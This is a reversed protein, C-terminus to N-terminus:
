SETQKKRASKSLALDRKKLKGASKTASIGKRDLKRGRKAIALDRLKSKGASKAAVLAKRNQKVGSKAVVPDGKKMKKGSKAILATHQKSKKVSKTLAVAHRAHHKSQKASAAVVAAGKRAKRTHLRSAHAMKREGADARVAREAPPVSSRAIMVPEERQILLARDFMEAAVNWRDTRSNLMVLLIDRNDKIARGILCRGARGTYGTKIGVAYPYRGLLKNHTKLSYVKRTSQEVFVARDLRAVANFVPNRVSYETLCLLDGATSTNGAYIGKDFGAPNTFRSNRMGIARARSNMSAVFADVSGSLHIAIAFAADNSSNVMAAKVLDLLRIREGVRFGAKSPEVNTSERTIIVDQDLKGSEIAMICTLIKTLSAPSVPRDIDKAMVVRSSCLDKVIYSDVPAQIQYSGNGPEAHLLAPLAISATFAFLCIGLTIVRARVPLHKRSKRSRLTWPRCIAATSFQEQM